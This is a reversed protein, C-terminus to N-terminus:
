VKTMSVIKTAHAGSTTPVDSSQLKLMRYKGLGRFIYRKKRRSISYASLVLLVLLIM